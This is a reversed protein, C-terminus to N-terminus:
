EEPHVIVGCVGLCVHFVDEAADTPSGDSSPGDLSGDDASADATADEGGDGPPVAVSGCIHTACPIRPSAGSVGDPFAVSGQIAPADDSADLGSADPNTRPNHWPAWPRRNRRM